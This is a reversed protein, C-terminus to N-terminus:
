EFMSDYDSRLYKNAALAATAGCIIMGIVVMGTCVLTVETLTVVTSIVPDVEMCYYIMGLLIASAIAGAALGGLMNGTVIPRRIYADTAGVLQMTHITFRRGYVALRVTNNILGFSILLLAVAVVLLAMAITDVTKNLSDVMESHITVENLAPFKRLPAVIKELSDTSAYEATVKVEIEPSFPNTGLMKSIDEEDGSMERWRELVEEATNFSADKVFPARSFYHRLEGMQQETATDSVTAVFGVNEKVSRTLSRGALSLLAVIGLILLVLAVSVTATAQSGFLPLSKKNNKSM